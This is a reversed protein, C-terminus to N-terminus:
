GHLAEVHLVGAMWGLWRGVAFTLAVTVILLGAGALLPMSRRYRYLAVILFPILVGKVVVFLLWHDHALVAMLPNGERNGFGWIGLATATLDLSNALLALFFITRM